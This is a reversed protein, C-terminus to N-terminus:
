SFLFGDCGNALLDSTRIVVLVIGFGVVGAVTLAQARVSRMTAGRDFGAALLMGGALGGAHAWIDINPALLGFVLNIGLWFLINGFYANMLANSRRQATYVLLVGMVGFIAGSAGAGGGCSGFLYSAVSGTFGAVVYMVTFRVSGFAQEVAPGMFYLAMSNLLIHMVSLHLVIPTLLRWWEGLAIAPPSGAFRALLEDGGAPNSLAQQLVFIGVNIALITFVAPAGSTNVRKVRPSSRRAEAVCEPCHQGVSAPIACRGCIPRDCRSCRLRTPTKPHGYCYTEESEDARTAAEDTPPSSM